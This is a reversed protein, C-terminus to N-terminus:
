GRFRLIPVDFPKLKERILKEYELSTKTDKEVLDWKNVLVVVGKGNRVALHVLNLDQSDMGVTADLVLVVVDCDELARISRMVSYFEIDNHVKSKKRVGATDIIIFEKLAHIQKYYYFKYGSDFGKTFFSM